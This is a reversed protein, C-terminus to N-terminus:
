YRQRCLASNTRWQDTVAWLNVPCTSRGFKITRVSGDAFAFNASGSQNKLSNLPHRSEEMDDLYGGNPKFLNLYYEESAAKKESFAVTDSPQLISGIKMARPLSGSIHQKWDEPSLTSLFFDGFSNMLYSRHFEEDEHAHEGGHEQATERDNPCLMVQDNPLISKLQSPWGRTPERPPLQDEHDNSYLTVALSLQRIQNMCVARKSSEKAQSLAPLLMAAILAVIAIVVLLEVLTFARHHTRPPTNSPM